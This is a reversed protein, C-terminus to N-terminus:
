SWFGAVLGGYIQGELGRRARYKDAQAQINAITKSAETQLEIGSVTYGGRINEVAALGSNVIDQLDIAGKNKLKQVGSATAASLNAQYIAVGSATDAEYRRIGSEMNSSYEVGSFRMLNGYDTSAAFRDQVGSNIIALREDIIGQQRIRDIDQLHEITDIPLAETVEKGDKNIYTYEYVNDTDYSFAPSEYTPMNELIPNLMESILDRLEDPDLGVTPLPDGGAGPTPGAGPNNKPDDVTEEEPTTGPTPGGPFQGPPTEPVFPDKLDVAGGPPTFGGPGYIKDYTGPDFDAMYARDSPDSLDYTAGTNGGIVTGTRYDTEDMEDVPKQNNNSGFGATFTNRDFANSPPIPAIQPSPWSPDRGKNKNKAVYKDLFAQVKSNKGLKDPNNRIFKGVKKESIGSELASRADDKTFKGDKVYQTYWNAM